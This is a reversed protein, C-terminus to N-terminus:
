FSSLLFVAVVLDVIWVFCCGSGCKCCCYRFNLLQNKSRQHTNMNQKRKKRQQLRWRAHDWRAQLKSWKKKEFFLDIWLFWKGQIDVIINLSKESINKRARCHMFYSVTFELSLSFSSSFPFSFSFQNSSHCFCVCVCQQNIAQFTFTCPISCVFKHPPSIKRKAMNQSQFFSLFTLFLFVIFLALPFWELESHNKLKMMPNKHMLNIMRVCVCVLTLFFLFMKDYLLTAHTFYVFYM